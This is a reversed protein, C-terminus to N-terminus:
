PQGPKRHHGVAEKHRWLDDNRGKYECGPFDCKMKWEPINNERAYVLHSTWLHRRLDRQNPTKYPCGETAKTPCERLGFQSEGGTNFDLDVGRSRRPSKKQSQERHAAGGPEDQANAPPPKHNIEPRLHEDPNYEPNDVSSEERLGTSEQVTSWFPALKIRGESDKFSVDPAPYFVFGPGEIIGSHRPGSQMDERNPSQTATLSAGSGDKPGSGDQSADDHHPGHTQHSSALTGPANHDPEDEFSIDPGRLKTLQAIPDFESSEPEPAFPPSKLHASPPGQSPQPPPPVAECSDWRLAEVRPAQHAAQFRQQQAARVRQQHAIQALQTELLKYPSPPPVKDKDEHVATDNFLFPPLGDSMKIAHHESEENQDDSLSEEDLGRDPLVFLAVDEQHRGVHRTYAKFSDLDEGCLECQKPADLPREQESLQILSEPSLSQAHEKHFTALHAKLTPLDDVQVDECGFPCVFVNWHAQQFHQM